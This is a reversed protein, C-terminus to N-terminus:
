AARSGARQLEEDSVLALLQCTVTQEPILKPPPSCNCMCLDDSLAIDKGNLQQLNRPTVCQIVGETGCAPCDIPDGECALPLGDLKYWTNSARM